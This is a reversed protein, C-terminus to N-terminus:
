VPAGRKPKKAGLPPWYRWFFIIKKEGPTKSYFVKEWFQKPFFFYGLQWTGRKKLWVCVFFFRKRYVRRFIKKFIEGGGHLLFLFGFFVGPPDTELV